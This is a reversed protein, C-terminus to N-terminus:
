WKEVQASKVGFWDKKAEMKKEREKKGSGDDFGLIVTRLGIPFTGAM